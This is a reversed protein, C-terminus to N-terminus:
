PRSLAVRDDEKEVRIATIVREAGRYLSHGIVAVSTASAKVRLTRVLSLM